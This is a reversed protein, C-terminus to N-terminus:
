RSRSGMSYIESHEGLWRVNLDIVGKGMKKIFLKTFDTM